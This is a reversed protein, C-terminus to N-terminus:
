QFFKIETTKGPTIAVVETNQEGEGCNQTLRYKGAAVNQRIPPNSLNTNNLFIFCTERQSWVVLTGVAPAQLHVTGGPKDEVTVRQDLYVQKAQLHLVQKPALRLDHKSYPGSIVRGSEDLVSFAYPGSLVVHVDTEVPPPAAAPKRSGDPEPAVTTKAGAPTSPTKAGPPTSPAAVSAATPKEASGAGPSEARMLLVVAFGAIAVAAGAVALGPWRTLWEAASRGTWTSPSLANARADAIAAFQSPPTIVAEGVLDEASGASWGLDGGPDGARTRLAIPSPARDGAAPYSGAEGVRGAAPPFGGGMLDHADSAVFEAPAGLATQRSPTPAPAGSATQPPTLAQPAPTRAPAERGGPSAAGISPVPIPVTTALRGSGSSHGTSQSRVVAQLDRLEAAMENAYQYRKARDKELARGIVAVLQPPVGPVDLPPPSEHVIKMMIGTPTEARFPRHGSLLEYLVTGVAFIDSRGDLDVEGSVQEPSM